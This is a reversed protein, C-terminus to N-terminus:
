DVLSTFGGYFGRLLPHESLQFAPAEAQPQTGAVCAKESGLRTSGVPLHRSGPCDNRNHLRVTRPQESGQIM